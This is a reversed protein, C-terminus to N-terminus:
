KFKPEIEQKIRTVFALVFADSEDWKFDFLAAMFGGIEFVSFGVKQERKSLAQKGALKVNMKILSALKLRVEWAEFGELKTDQAFKYADVMNGM